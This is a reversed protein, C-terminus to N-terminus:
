PGGTLQAAPVYTSGNWQYIIGNQRVTNGYPGPKGTQGPMPANMAPQVPMNQQGQSAVAGTSDSSGGNVYSDLLKQADGMTEPHKFALPHALEMKKNHNNIINQSIDQENKLTLLNNFMLDGVNAAAPANSFYSQLNAMSQGATPTMLHEFQGLSGSGPSLTNMLGLVLESYQKPTKTNLQEILQQKLKPDKQAAALMDPTIDVSGMLRTAQDVKNQAQGIASRSSATETNLDKALGKLDNQAASRQRQDIQNQRGANLYALEVQKNEKAAQIKQLVDVNQNFQALQAASMNSVDLNELGPIGKSVAQILKQANQSEQSKPDNMKAQLDLAQKQKALDGQAVAQQLVNNAVQNQLAFKQNFDNLAQQRQAIAQNVGQAAQNKLGQYFGTDVGAGGYAMSNSKALSELADGLNAIFDSRKMDAKAQDVGSTDAAKDYMPKLYATMQAIRDDVSGSPLPTASVAPAMPLAQPTPQVQTDPTSENEDDPIFDDM